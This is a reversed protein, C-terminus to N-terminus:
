LTDRQERSREHAQEVTEHNRGLHDDDQPGDYEEQHCEDCLKTAIAVPEDCRACRRPMDLDRDDTSPQDFTSL